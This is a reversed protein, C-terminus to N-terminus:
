PFKSFFGTKKAESVLFLSGSIVIVWGKGYIGKAIRLAERVDAALCINKGKVVRRLVLPDQSRPNNFGTLILYSYSISELMRKADKDQSCAFILIVKRRPYYRKLNDDLALFSSPNHAIDLIILPTSSVAEFRGALTCGSLGQKYEIKDKIVGSGALLSVAALALTANEVQSKGKLQIKLNKLVLNGSEFDFRTYKKGFRLNKARFDRGALVLLARKARCKSRIAKLAAPRQPACILPTGKKIIGAKEAAIDALKRGLKDTHDYGIHTIISALSRTVNTSDLRGGLGSELVVFDLKKQLFYKFAVATSFEFFTIRGLARPIKLGALDTKFQEVIRVFSPRSILGERISGFRSNKKVIKIRERFDFLHPSTFLGTTFGSAALLYACFNAASGKGKTGAIHIVKLNQYPIRLHKLLLYVRKLKLSHRYSFYPVKEYNLFSELYEKARRYRNVKDM